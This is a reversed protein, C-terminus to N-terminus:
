SGASDFTDRSATTLRADDPETTTTERLMLDTSKAFPQSIGGEFKGILCTSSISPASSLAGLSEGDLTMFFTTHGRWEFPMARHATRRNKGHTRSPLSRGMGAYARPLVILM